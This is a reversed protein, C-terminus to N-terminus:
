NIIWWNVTDNDSANSSNIVFSVGNSITGVSLIGANTTSSGAHTLMIISNTTVASTSITITGGSM